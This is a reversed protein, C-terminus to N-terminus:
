GRGGGTGGPTLHGAGEVACSKPRINLDLSSEKFWLVVNNVYQKYLSLSNEDTLHVVLAMNDAYKYLSLGSSYCPIDNTYISLLVCGQPVGTNVYKRFYFWQSQQPCCQRCQLVQLQHLLKKTYVTNFASSFDMFLIRIISNPSDFHRAVTDM